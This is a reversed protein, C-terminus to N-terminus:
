RSMETGALSNESCGPLGLCLKNQDEERSLDLVGATNNVSPSMMLIRDRYIDTINRRQWCQLFAIFCNAHCNFHRM